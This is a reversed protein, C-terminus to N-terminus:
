GKNQNESFFRVTKDGGLIRGDCAERKAKAYSTSFGIEAIHIDPQLAALKVTGCVMGPGDGFAAATRMKSMSSSEGAKVFSLPGKTRPATAFDAVYEELAQSTELEHQRRKAEAAEEEKQKKTKKATAQTFAVVKSQDLTKKQSRHLRMPSFSWPYVSM